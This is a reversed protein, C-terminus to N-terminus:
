DRSAAARAAEGLAREYVVVDRWEGDLVGHALHTGVERFGCRRMLAVSVGNTPFVKSVIKHMGAREAEAALAELLRAGVGRGRAARAVYISLEGVGLYAPMDSYPGLGAWAVVRGDAEAVLLPLPGAVREDYDAAARPRTEFTAVRDEIGENHIAALAAADGPRAPRIVPNPPSM